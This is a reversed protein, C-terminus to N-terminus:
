STEEVEFVYVDSSYRIANRDAAERTKWVKATSPDTTIVWASGRSIAAMWHPRGVPLGKERVFRLVYTM